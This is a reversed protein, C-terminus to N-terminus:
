SMPSMHRAFVMKTCDTNITSHIWSLFIESSSDPKIKLSYIKTLAIDFHFTITLTQQTSINTRSLEYASIFFTKLSPPVIKFLIIPVILIISLYIFALITSANENQGEPKIIMCLVIALIFGLLILGFTQKGSRFPLEISVGEGYTRRARIKRGSMLTLLIEEIENQKIDQSIKHKSEIKAREGLIAKAVKIAEETYVGPKSNIIELLVEDNLQDLREKLEEREPKM